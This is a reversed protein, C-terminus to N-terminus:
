TAAKASLTYNINLTVAMIYICIAMWEFSLQTKPILQAEM